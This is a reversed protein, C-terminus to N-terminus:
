KLVKYLLAAGGAVAALILLTKFPCASATAKGTAVTWNSSDLTSAGSQSASTGSLGLSTLAPFM